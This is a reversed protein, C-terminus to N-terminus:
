QILIVLGKETLQGMSLLNNKLGPVYFVNTIIQIFGNVFMKGVVIMKSNDGLKITNELLTMLIM